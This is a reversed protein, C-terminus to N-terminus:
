YNVSITKPIQGTKRYEVDIYFILKYALMDYGNNSFKYTHASNEIQIEGKEFLTDWDTEPYIRKEVWVKRGSPRKKKKTEITPEPFFSMPLVIIGDYPDDYKARYETNLSYPLYEYIVCDEDKLKLKAWAGEGISMIDGVHM